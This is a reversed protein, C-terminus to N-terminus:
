LQLYQFTLIKVVKFYHLAAEIAGFNGGQVAVTRPDAKSVSVPMYLPLGIETKVLFVVTLALSDNVASVEM